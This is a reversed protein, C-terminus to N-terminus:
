IEAGFPQAYGPPLGECGRQFLYASSQQSSDVIVLGNPDTVTLGLGTGGQGNGFVVRLPIYDGSTLYSRTISASGTGTSQGNSNFLYSARMDANDRTFGAQANSGLWLYAADDINSFRFTYTGPVAIYLYGRHNLSLFACRPATTGYLPYAYPNESTCQALGGIRNTTGQVLPSQTKVAAPDFNPYGSAANRNDNVYGAFEVGQNGCTASPPSCDQITTAAFETVTSSVTTTSAELTTTDAVSVIATSTPSSTATSTVTTSPTPIRLCSCATSIQARQFNSLAPPLGTAQRKVQEGQTPNATCTRM